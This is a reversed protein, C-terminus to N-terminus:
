KILVFTCYTLWSLFLIFMCNKLCKWGKENGYLLYVTNRHIWNGEAILARRCIHLLTMHAIIFVQSLICHVSLLPLLSTSSSPSQVYVYVVSWLEKPTLLQVFIDWLIIVHRCHLQIITLPSFRSRSSILLIFHLTSEALPQIQACDGPLWPIKNVSRYYYKTLSRETDRYWM